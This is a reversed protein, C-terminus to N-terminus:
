YQVTLGTLRTVAREALWIPIVLTVDIMLTFSFALALFRAAQM